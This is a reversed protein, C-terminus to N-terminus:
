RNCVDLDTSGFGVGNPEVVPRLFPRIFLQGFYKGRFYSGDGVGVLRLSQSFLDRIQLLGYTSRNQLDDRASRRAKRESLRFQHLQIKPEIGSNFRRIVEAVNFINVHAPTFAFKIELKAVRADILLMSDVFVFGGNAFEDVLHLGDSSM